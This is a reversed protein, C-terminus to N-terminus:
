GIDLIEVLRKYATYLDYAHDVNAIAGCERCVPEYSYGTFDIKPNSCTCGGMRLEVVFIHRLASEAIELSIEDADM